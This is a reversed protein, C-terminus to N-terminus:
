RVAAIPTYQNQAIISQRRRSYKPDVDVEMHLVFTVPMERMMSFVSEDTCCDFQAFMGNECGVPDVNREAEIEGLIISRKKPAIFIYANM